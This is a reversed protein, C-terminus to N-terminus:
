LIPLGIELTQALRHYFEVVTRLKIGTGMHQSWFSEKAQRCDILSLGSRSLQREVDNEDLAIASGKFAKGAADVATYRFNPM